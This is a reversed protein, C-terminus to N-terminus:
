LHIEGCRAIVFDGQRDQLAHTTTTVSRKRNGDRENQYKRNLKRRTVLILYSNLKTEM